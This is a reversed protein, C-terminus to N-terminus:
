IPLLAPIMTTATTAFSLTSLTRSTVLVTNRTRWLTHDYSVTLRCVRM